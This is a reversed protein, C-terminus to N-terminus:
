QCVREGYEVAADYRAQLIPENFAVHAEVFGRAHSLLREYPTAVALLRHERITSDANVAWLVFEDGNQYLVVGSKTPNVERAVLAIREAGTKFNEM